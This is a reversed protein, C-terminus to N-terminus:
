NEKGFGQKIVYAPSKIKELQLLIYRESSVAKWIKM